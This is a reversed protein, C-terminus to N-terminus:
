IMDYPKIKRNNNYKSRFFNFYFCYAITTLLITPITVLGISTIIFVFPIKLCIYYKFFIYRYFVSDSNFLQLVIIASQAFCFIFVLIFLSLEYDLINELTYKYHWLNKFYKGTVYFTIMIFKYFYWISVIFDFVLIFPFGVVIFDSEYFEDFYLIYLLIGSVVLIFQSFSILLNCLLYILSKFFLEKM